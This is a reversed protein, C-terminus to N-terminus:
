RQPSLLTSITANAGFSSTQPSLGKIWIVQSGYDPMTKHQLAAPLGDGQRTVEHPFQM